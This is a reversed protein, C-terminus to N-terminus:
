ALPNVITTRAGQGTLTVSVMSLQTADGGDESWQVQAYGEYAEDTGNRDYWRVRVLGDTGFQDYAARIVAQGPDETFGAAMKRGLKCVLSWKLLTKVDSGWGDADYDTDDQMTPSTQPQLDRVARVPIYDTGDMGSSADVDFKWKRALTSTLTPTSVATYTFDTSSSVETDTGFDVAHLKVAAAAQPPAIITWSTATNTATTDTAAEIAGVLFVDATDLSTGTIVIKTGGTAPGTSPTFSTIALTM